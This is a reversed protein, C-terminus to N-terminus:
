RQRPRHQSLISQGVVEVNLGVGEGAGAIVTPEVRQAFGPPATLARHGPRVLGVPAEEPGKASKSLSRITDTFVVLM